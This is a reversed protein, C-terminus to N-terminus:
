SGMLYKGEKEDKHAAGNMRLRVEDGDLIENAEHKAEARSTLLM